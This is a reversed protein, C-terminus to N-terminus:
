NRPNVTQGIRREAERKASRIVDELQELSSLAQNPLSDMVAEVTDSIDYFGIKGALYADVAVENAANMVAPLIGQERAADVALKLCPFRAADPKEFTLSGLKCFDLYEPRPTHPNKELTFAYAIPQFMSPNSLQALLSNDEFRVMSHIISEPHVLVEIKEANVSFLHMAEIIELGKNMMTASDITIKKGMQWNPHKLADSARMGAIEDYTKTRFPGGSATLVLNKVNRGHLNGGLCQYIASHESDVPIIKAKGGSKRYADMVLPGAAVLTEKNAIALTKGARVASIAARIGSMGSVSLLVLDAEPDVALAELDCAAASFLEADSATRAKKRGEEPATCLVHRPSFKKRINEAADANHHYSFSHLILEENGEIIQLAQRGISGTAGLICIKKM